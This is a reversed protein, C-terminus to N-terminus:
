GTTWPAAPRDKYLAAYVEEGLRNRLSVPPLGAIRKIERAMHPQDSYGCEAAAASLDAGAAVMAVAHHFRMLATFKRHEIGSLARWLRRFTRESVGLAEALDSSKTTGSAILKSLAIAHDVKVSRSPAMMRFARNAAEIRAETKSATVLDKVLKAGVAGFVDVPPTEVDIMDAMPRKSYVGLGWPRFRVAFMDIPYDAAIQVSKFAACILFAHPQRVWQGSAHLRNPPEGIHVILEPAADPLIAELEREEPSFRWSWYCEIFAHLDPPPTYLCVNKSM